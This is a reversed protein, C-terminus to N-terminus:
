GTAVRAGEASIWGGVRAGGQQGAGCDVTVDLGAVQQKVSVMRQLQGVKPQRQVQGRLACVRAHARQREHHPPRPPHPPSPPPSICTHLQM